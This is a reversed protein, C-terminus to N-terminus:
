LFYWVALGGLILVLLVIGLIIWLKKRSKKPKMLKKGIANVTLKSPKTESPLNTKNIKEITTSVSPANGKSQTNLQVLAEDIEKQSHGSSLIKKKLDALNYNGRNVRLYELVIKNVM